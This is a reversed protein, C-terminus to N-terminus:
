RDFHRQWVRFVLTGCFAGLTDAFWDSPDNGTRNLHFSQHFEDWIGILSLIGTAILTLKGGAHGKGYFLLASLLGGGGFFYGWHAVKDFHQFGFLPGLQEPLKDGHSFWNLLVFWAIFSWVWIRPSRRWSPTLLSFSQSDPNKM